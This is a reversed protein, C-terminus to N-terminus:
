LGTEPRRRRLFLYLMAAVNLGLSACVLWTLTSLAGSSRTEGDRLLTIDSQLQTIDTQVTALTAPKFATTEQLVLTKGDFLLKALHDKELTLPLSFKSEEGLCHSLLLETQLAGAPAPFRFGIPMKNEDARALQANENLLPEGNVLYSLTCAKAPDFGPLQAPSQLTIDIWGHDDALIHERRAESM